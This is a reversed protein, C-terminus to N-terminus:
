LSPIIMGVEKKYKRYEDGLKDMLNKEEYHLGV